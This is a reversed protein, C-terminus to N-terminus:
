AGSPTSNATAGTNQRTRRTRYCIGYPLELDLRSLFSGHCGSQIVLTKGQLTPKYLRNHTHGSLCVDIGEVEPLLKM